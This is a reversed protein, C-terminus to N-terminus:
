MVDGGMDILNNLGLSTGGSIMVDGGDGGDETNESSGVGASFVLKGGTSSEATSEGATVVVDGGLSGEGTAM